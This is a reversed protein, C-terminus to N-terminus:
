TRKRMCRCAGGRHRGPTYRCSHATCVSGPVSTSVGGAFLDIHPVRETEKRTKRDKATTKKEEAPQNERRRKKEQKAKQKGFLSAHPPEPSFSSFFLLLFFFPPSTPATMEGHERTSPLCVRAPSLSLSLPFASAYEPEREREEERQNKKDKRRNTIMPLRQAHPVYRNKKKRATFSLNLKGLIRFIQLGQVVQKGETTLSSSSRCAPPPRRRANEKKGERGGRPAPPPATDRQRPHRRKSLDLGEEVEAPSREGLLLARDNWAM